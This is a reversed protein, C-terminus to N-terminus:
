RALGHDARVKMNKRFLQGVNVACGGGHTAVVAPVISSAEHGESASGAAPAVLGMEYEGGQM